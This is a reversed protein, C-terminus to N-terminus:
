RWHNALVNIAITIISIVITAGLAWVKFGRNHGQIHNNITEETRISREIVTDLKGEIKELWVREDKNM